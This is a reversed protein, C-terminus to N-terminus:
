RGTEHTETKNESGVIEIKNRLSLSLANNLIKYIFICVTYRLKQRVSMFQLAQLMHEIKTYEDCDLTARIAWGEYGV